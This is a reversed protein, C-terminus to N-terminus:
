SPARMREACALCANVIEGPEFTMPTAYNGCWTVRAGVPVDASPGVWAHVVGPERQRVLCWVRSAHVELASYSAALESHRRRERKATAGKATYEDPDFLM